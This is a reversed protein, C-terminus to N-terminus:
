SWEGQERHVGNINASRRAGCRCFETRCINGHAERKEEVGQIPGHFCREVDRYAVHGKCQEISRERDANILAAARRFLESYIIRLLGVNNKAAYRLDDLAINQSRGARVVDVTDTRWDAYKVTTASMAAGKSM